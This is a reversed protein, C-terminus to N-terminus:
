IGVERRKMFVRLRGPTSGTPFTRKVDYVLGDAHAEDDRQVDAGRRLTTIHTIDAGMQQAQAVERAGAMSIRGREVDGVTQPTGTIVGGQGDDSVSARKFTIPTKGTNISM